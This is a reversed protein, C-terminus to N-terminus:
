SIELFVQNDQKSIPKAPHVQMCTPLGDTCRSQELEM